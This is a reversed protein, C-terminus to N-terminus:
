LKDWTKPVVYPKAKKEKKKFIDLNLGGGAHKPNALYQLTGGVAALAFTVPLAIAGATFITGAAAAGFAAAATLAANRAMNKPKTDLKKGAQLMYYNGFGIFAGAIGGVLFAGGPLGAMTLGLGIAQSSGLYTLLGLGIHAAKGSKLNFWHSLSQKFNSM